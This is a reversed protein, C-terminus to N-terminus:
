GHVAGPLRLLRRPLIDLAPRGLLFVCGFVLFRMLFGEGFRFISRNWHIVAEPIYQKRLLPALSM